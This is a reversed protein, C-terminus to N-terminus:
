RRMSRPIRSSRTVPSAIIVAKGAPDVHKLHFSAIANDRAGSVIAFAILARDRKEIDTRAPMMEVVRRIMALSPVPRTAARPATAIRAEGATLNFYELDSAIIRRYGRRGILFKFLKKVAMLRAHLTATALPKGTEANRCDQLQFGQEVLHEHLVVERAVNTKM